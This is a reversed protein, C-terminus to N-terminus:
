LVFLKPFQVSLNVQNDRIDLHTLQDLASFQATETPLLSLRNLRLDIKRGFKLKNVVEKPLKEISNGAMIVTTVQFSLM